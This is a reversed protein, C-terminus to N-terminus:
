LRYRRHRIRLANALSDKARFLFESTPFERHDRPPLALIEEWEELSLGLKEAIYAKDRELMEKSPYPPKKLEELAEERTIQGSLILSSLHAKRKDIGFKTPLYYGQFFRTLVSEYHKLGYDQWGYRDALIRKAEARNYPVYNLLRVEKIKRVIPYYVYREV